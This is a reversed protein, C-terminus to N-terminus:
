NYKKTNFRLELNPTGNKGYDLPYLKNSWTNSLIYSRAMVEKGIELDNKGITFKATASVEQLYNKLADPIAAKVTVSVETTNKSSNTDVEYVCLYNTVQSETWDQNLARNTLTYEKPKTKDIYSRKVKVSFETTAGSVYNATSGQPYAVVFKFDSAGRLWGDYQKRCIIGSLGWYLHEVTAEGDGAKTEPIVSLYTVNGAKTEGNIFNPIDDYDIEPETIVWVPHEKAYEESVLLQEVKDTGIGKYAIACDNEDLDQLYTIVPLSHGDWFDSYPWYIEVNGSQMLNLLTEPDNIGCNSSKTTSGLFQELKNKLAKGNSVDASVKTQESSNWLESLYMEEDLGFYSAAQVNSFVSSLDEGDLQISAFVKALDNLQAENVSDTSILDSDNLPEKSCGAILM